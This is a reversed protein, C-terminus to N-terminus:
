RRGALALSASKAAAILLVAALLRRLTINSFKRSGWHSGLFGGIAAAVVWSLWQPPWRVATHAHGLLGSASNLWIFVASVASTERANAWGMFIFIPSLFIGGGVGVMGSVIGILAGVALSLGLPPAPRIQPAAASERPALALRVGAWVLVAALVIGYIKPSVSLRAGAYSMPISSLAFPWLLQFRFHGARYYQVAGIGAVLLNLALAGPKMIDPSFSLLAMVALYGSAGGHGVSAYLAAVLAVAAAIGLTHIMELAM